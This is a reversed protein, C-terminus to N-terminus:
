SYSPMWRSRTSSKRAFFPQSSAAQQKIYRVAATAIDGEIQERYELDYLGVKRPETGAQDAEISSMLRATM